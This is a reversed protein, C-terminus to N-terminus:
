HKLDWSILRWYSATYHRIQPGWIFLPLALMSIVCFIGSLAGFAKQYGQSDVWPVTAKILGFAVVNKLGNIMELCEAAVPFYSDVVYTMGISAAGTLGVSVFGYAVFMVSWPMQKEAAFGFVLIGIFVIGCPIFILALRSEPQFVGNNRHARWNVWKDILIGGTLAGLAQGIMGAVNILGVAGVSFNYPPPILIISSLVNIMVTPALCISYLLTAFACAPYALLPIPRILLQLYTEHSHIGSWPNLLQRYTKVPRNSTTPPSDSHYATTSYQAQEIQSVNGKEGERPNNTSPTAGLCQSLDTSRYFRSEPAFFFIFLLNFGLLIASFWKGWAWGKHEIIYGGCLPGLSSGFALSIMYLAMKSGREHLFYLDVCAAQLSSFNPSLAAWIAAIFTIACAALFVPRKGLYIATPVWFFNGLGLVLIVWSILGTAKDVSVELDVAITYFSDSLVTGSINNFCAFMCVAAFAMHKRSKPWSLPDNPDDSPQPVLITDNGALHQAHATASFLLVTGETPDLEKLTKLPM